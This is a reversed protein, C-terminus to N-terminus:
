KNSGAKLEIVTERLKQIGGSKYAKIFLSGVIAGDAYSNVEAVQSASSIGIGVCVPTTTGSAKVGSVVDRAKRDLDERAGTIGM